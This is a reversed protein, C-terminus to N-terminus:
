CCVRSTVRHSFGLGKEAMKNADKTYKKHSLSVSLARARPLICAFPAKLSPSARGSM